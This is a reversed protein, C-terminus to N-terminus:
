PFADIPAQIGAKVSRWMRRRIQLESSPLRRSLGDAFKNAVSPVWEAHIHTRRNYLVSKLRRLEHMLPRSASDFSSAVHVVVQSDVHMLLENRGQRAAEDRLLGMLLMRIAKLVRYSISEM